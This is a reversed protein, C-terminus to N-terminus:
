RRSNNLDHYPAACSLHRIGQAIQTHELNPEALPPGRSGRAPKPASSSDRALPDPSRTRDRICM